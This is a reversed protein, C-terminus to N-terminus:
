RPLPEFGLVLELFIVHNHLGFEFDGGFFEALVERELNVVHEVVDLAQVEVFVRVVLIDHGLEGTEVLTHTKDQVKLIIPDAKFPIDLM